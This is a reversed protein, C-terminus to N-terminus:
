DSLATRSSESQAVGAGLIAASTLTVAQIQLSFDVLAHVGVLCAVATAVVPVTSNQARRGAGRICKLVLVAVSLVLLSGFVAGLGQFLELYTNHAKDMVGIVSVSRDRFMPFVDVFTGYGYGLFPSDLISYLIIKYAAFRSADDFGERTLRGTMADGFLFFGALVIVLIFVSSAGWGRGSRRDRAFTLFLLMFLGMAFALMGGRSLTTLLAALVVAGGGVLFAAGQATAAIFNAIKHRLPGGPALVSGRYFRLTLGAIVLLGIGAYTAFHNRNVFTSTVRGRMSPNDFWLVTGPAVSYAILGYAAYLVGIVAICQLLAKAREADRCLQLALWFVSAATLLRLLAVSTLERNVSVSGALEKGLAESAMAWIPHHLAAPTWTAMQVTIWLVVLAFLSASLWIAGIGVPHRKRQLLLLLEYAILLSPFLVANIGWAFVRNSGLWFPVWALGAVFLGFIIGEGREGSRALTGALAGHPAARPPQLPSLEFDLGTPNSAM